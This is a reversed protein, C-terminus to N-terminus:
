VYLGDIRHNDQPQRRGCQFWCQQISKKAWSSSFTTFTESSFIEELSHEHLSNSTGLIRTQIDRIQKVMTSNMQGQLFNGVFGCPYVNGLANVFFEHIAINEMPWKGERHAYCEITGQETTPEPLECDWDLALPIWTRNGTQTVHELTDVLNYDRDMVALNQGDVGYPNKLHFHIRHEQALAQARPIDEQNHRFQLYDWHCEEGTEVYAMINGWVRRWSVNRRYRHNTNELGDVSFTLYRYPQVPGQATMYSRWSAFLRGIARFYESNRLGGNTNIQINGPSHECVYELIALLDPNAFPDGHTGCFIWHRIQSLFQPSFWARFEDITISTEVFDPPLNPSNRLFRPCAPCAAQCRSSLEMHIATIKDLQWAATIQQQQQPLQHPTTM